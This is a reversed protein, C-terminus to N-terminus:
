IHVLPLVLCTLLFRYFSFPLYFPLLM